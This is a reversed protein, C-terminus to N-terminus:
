VQKGSRSEKLRIRGGWKQDGDSEVKFRWKREGPDPLVEGGAELLLGDPGLSNM